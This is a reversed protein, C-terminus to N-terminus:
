REVEVSLLSKYGLKAEAAYDLLAKLDSLVETLSTVDADFSVSVQEVEVKM